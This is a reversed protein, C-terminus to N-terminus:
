QANIRNSLHQYELSPALSFMLCRFYFIFAIPLHSQAELFNSVLLDKRCLKLNILPILMKREFQNWIFEM